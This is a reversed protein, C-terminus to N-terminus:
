LQLEAWAFASRWASAGSLYALFASRVQQLTVHGAARFLRGSERYELLWPDSEHDRLFAQCEESPKWDNGAQIFEDDSAVLVVFKGFTDSRLVEDLTSADVGPIDGGGETTLTM